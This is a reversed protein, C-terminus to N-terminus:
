FNQVFINEQFLLDKLLYESYVSATGSCTSYIVMMGIGLFSNEGDRNGKTLSAISNGFLILAISYATFYNFTNTKRLFFSALLVTVPIKLNTLLNFMSPTLEKLALYVINNSVVYILSVPIFYYINSFNLPNDTRKSTVRILCGSVILKFIESMIIMNEVPVVNANNKQLNHIFISELSSTFLLFVPLLIKSTLEM